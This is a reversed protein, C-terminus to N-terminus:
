FGRLAHCGGRLVRSVRGGGPGRMDDGGGAGPAVTKKRLAAIDWVRVQLRSPLCAPM